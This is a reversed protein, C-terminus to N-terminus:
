AAVIQAQINAACLLMKDEAVPKYKKEGKPGMSAKHHRKRKACVAETNSVGLVQKCRMAAYESWPLYMAAYDRMLQNKVTRLRLIQYCSGHEHKRSHCVLHHFYRKMDQHAHESGETSANWPKAFLSYTQHLGYVFDHAYTRRRHTGILALMARQMDISINVAETAAATRDAASMESAKKDHGEHLKAYFTIYTVFACGVRQSYTLQTVAREADRLEDDLPADTTVECQECIVEDDGSLATKSEPGVWDTEKDPSPAHPGKQGGGGKKATEPEPEDGVDGFDVGRLKKRKQKVESTSGGKAKGKGGKDGKGDGTEPAKGVIKVKVVKQGPTYRNRELMAYVPAMLKITDILLSKHRLVAKATPGNVAHSHAGKSDKGFLILKPLYVSKWLTNVQAQAHEIVAMVDKDPSEVM